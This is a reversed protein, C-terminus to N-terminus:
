VRERKGRQRIRGPVSPLMILPALPWVSHRQAPVRTGLWRTCAITLETAEQLAGNAAQASSGVYFGTVDVLVNAVRFVIEAAFFPQNNGFTGTDTWVQASRPLADNPYVLPTGLVTNQYAARGLQAGQDTAFGFLDYTAFPAGVTARGDLWGQYGSMWGQRHFGRVMAVGAVQALTADTIPGSRAPRWVLDAPVQAVPLMLKGPSAVDILNGAARAPALVCTVAVLLALCGPWWIGARKWVARMM